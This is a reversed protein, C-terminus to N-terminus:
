LSASIKMTQKPYPGLSLKNCLTWDLHSLSILCKWGVARTSRIPLLTSSSSPCSYLASLICPSALRRAMSHPRKSYMGHLAWVWVPSLCAKSVAAFITKFTRALTPVVFDQVLSVINNNPPQSRSFLVFLLERKLFNPYGFICESSIGKDTRVDISLTLSYASSQKAVSKSNTTLSSVRSLRSAAPFPSVSVRM